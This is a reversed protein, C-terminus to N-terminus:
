HVGDDQLGTNFIHQNAISSIEQVAFTPICFATNWETAPIKEYADSQYDSCEALDSTM